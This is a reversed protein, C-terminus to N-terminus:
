SRHAEFAQRDPWQQANCIVQGLIAQAMGTHYRVLKRLKRRKFPRLWSTSRYQVDFKRRCGEFHILQDFVRDAEWTQMHGFAFCFRSWVWLADVNNPHDLLDIVGLVAEFWNARGKMLHPLKEVKDKIITLEENM